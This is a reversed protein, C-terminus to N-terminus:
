VGIDLPTGEFIASWWCSIDWKHAALHHHGVVTESTDVVDHSSPSTLPLNLAKCLDIVFDRTAISIKPDLSLINKNGRGTTNHGKKVNYGKKKYHGIWKYVPQQCIDIGISGENHKGCHWAKHSLDLYQYVVPNLNDDLGIGFHTSVERSGSSMVAHLHAPDLGGWHMVVRDIPERRKSFNGYSHLDLVKGRYEVEDYNVIKYAGTDPMPIRRSGWVIYNDLEGVFDYIELAKSWTGKGFKGDALVGLDKQLRFVANSFKGSDAPEKLDPYEETLASPLLEGRAVPSHKSNYRVASKLTFQEVQSSM